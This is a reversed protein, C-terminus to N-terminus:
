GHNAEIAPPEPMDDSVHGDPYIRELVDAIRELAQAMRTTADAQAQGSQRQMRAYSMRDPM